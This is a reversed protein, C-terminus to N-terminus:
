LRSAKSQIFCRSTLNKPSKRPNQFRSAAREKEKIKTFNGCQGLLQFSEFECFRAEKLVIGNLRSICYVDM